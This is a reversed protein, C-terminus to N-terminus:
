LAEMDVYFVYKDGRYVSEVYEFPKGEQSYTTRRILLVPAGPELNLLKMERQNCIAAEMQQEARTPVIGLKESLLKYLSRNELNETLVESCRDHHLYCTEIALPEGDALRLRELVTVPEGTKLGLARAAQVPAALTTLRLVHAGPHQGRARMDETFGTLRTLHQEIKPRAVFTGKGKERRLLGENVLESLAQRVTMRSIGHEECLERESPILDGPKWEGTAIKERILEKLQYYIPLPHNKDLM